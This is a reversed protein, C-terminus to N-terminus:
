SSEGNGRACDELLMRHWYFNQHMGMLNAPYEGAEIGDKLLNTLYGKVYVDDKEVQMQYFQRSHQVASAFDRNYKQLLM